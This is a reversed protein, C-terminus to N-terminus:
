ETFTPQSDLEELMEAKDIEIVFAHSNKRVVTRVSDVNPLLSGSKDPPTALLVQLGTDRMFQLASATRATDMKGFAEDFLALRITDSPRPQNLRYAQAFSAVMAVYFPTTTEGGSKKANIQSLLARDGNPYHIRIDYQLYNRYDQLERLESLMTENSDAARGAAALREFLLDLGQQHKQRFDSEFLSTGLVSQSDMVLDYMQRLGSAPQTLFEFREGGFRLQALTSNLYVLQQRAEEIQERLRHIFNEVLEQEALVRQESIRAEYEPLESGVLKDREALYRAAEEQDDYGFDYRLSYAHKAERLRDRSRSEAAQYDNEYRSANQLITEVPQRELRSNYEKEIGALLDQRGADDEVEQTLFGEANRLAEDIEKELRPIAGEALSQARAELNGIHRELNATEDQLREAEAQRRAVEVRLSEITRLDLAALEAQIADSERALPPLRDLDPLANELEILSRAKELTLALKERIRLSRENLETMAAAIEALRTQRQEIQRPNSREGIFWRRYVQPNLHSTTFNRRVFCEQTVATRHDRLEELSNCKHYHGLLLDVYARAAPHEAQVEAALSAQNTSPGRRSAEGLIRATDLLGVGHLGDKHRREQYLRMTADYHAPPVLLTFRQAGLIGEVADQWAPDPVQLAMCLFIAEDAKLGLEARLLRRLRMAQPAETEYSVERDGTRLKRIEDEIQAGEARLRRAEENLLAEQRSFEKGLAALDTHLGGVASLLGSIQNQNWVSDSSFGDPTFHSLTLFEEIAAPIAAGEELLLSRLKRADATERALSQAMQSARRNLAELESEVGTLRAHLGKERAATSDTQLTVQADLLASQAHRLRHGMEERQIGARELNLRIEDLELRTNKLETRHFDGRARRAIYGNSLRRRRNSAREKDLEEIGNLAAIRERVDAALSEFHRLTELQAQLTKIDVLNEDLLYNHVFSRIDTLPSFALGKVIKAPFSEKLQGLRNLLHVRYDELRTFVQARGGPLLAVQELNRKFLRTEFLQGPSKFFWADDLAASHVIFYAVDPNRGDAYADIVAGNVFFTGDPNRFELAVVGTADGRLYRQSETGLEGRVYSALTRKSGSLAAQNFRVDRQGGVLAFQVADLITSKGAGNIGIFYTTGQCTITTNEFLHWNILRIRTLTKM